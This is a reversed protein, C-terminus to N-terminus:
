RDKWSIQTLEYWILILLYMTAKSHDDNLLALVVGLVVLVLCIPEALVWARKIFARM